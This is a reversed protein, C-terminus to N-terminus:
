IVYTNCTMIDQMCMRLDDRISSLRDCEIWNEYLFELPANSCISLLCRAFDDFGDNDADCEIINAIEAMISIKYTRSVRDKYEDEFEGKNDMVYKQM